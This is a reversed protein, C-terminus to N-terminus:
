ELQRDQDKMKEPLSEDHNKPTFCGTMFFSTTLM